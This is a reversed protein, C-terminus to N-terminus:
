DIKKLVMTNQLFTILEPCVLSRLSSNVYQIATQGKNNKEQPNLGRELLLTILAKRQALFIDQKKPNNEAIDRVTENILLLNYLCTNHNMSEKENPDIGADLLLNFLSIRKKTWEPFLRDHIGDCIGDCLVDFLNLSKLEAGSAILEKVTEIEHLVAATFLPTINDHRVNVHAGHTLLKKTIDLRSDVIVSEFLLPKHYDPHPENIKDPQTSILTNVAELLQAHTTQEREAAKKKYKKIEDPSLPAISMHRLDNHRYNPREPMLDEDNPHAYFPFPDSAKKTFLSTVKNTLKKIISRKQPPRDMASLSFTCLLLIIKKM